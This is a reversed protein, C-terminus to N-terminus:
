RLIQYMAIDIACSSLYGEIEIQVACPLNMAKKSQNVYYKQSHM